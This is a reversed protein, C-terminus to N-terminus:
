DKSAPFGITAGGKFRISEIAGVGRGTGGKNDFYNYLFVFKATGKQQVLLADNMFDADSTTDRWSIYVQSRDLTSLDLKDGTGGGDKVEDFGSPYRFTNYTDNSNKSSDTIQNTLAGGDYTDNGEGGFLRDRGDSGTLLDNGNAGYILDNGAGGQLSNTGGSAVVQDNGGGAFVGNGGDGGWIHDDSDTGFCSGSFNCFVTDAMAVSTAMLLMMAMTTLLAITRRMQKEKKEPLGEKAKPAADKQKRTDPYPAARLWSKIVTGLSWRIQLNRPNKHGWVQKVSLAEFPANQHFERV